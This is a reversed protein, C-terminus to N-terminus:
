PRDAANVLRAHLHPITEEHCGEIHFGKGGLAPPRVVINKWPRYFYAPRKEPTVQHNRYDGLPVVDFNAATFHRVQFGLNRVMSLAKLFVEPGMVASGFNLFAGKELRSVTDCFHYFDRGSARGIAGFDCNPHQHVIDAGLSVHLTMPIGAQYAQWIVSVERHPFLDPHTEMYRGLCRGYGLAGADDCAISDLMCQGTETWMGFTGNAIADGVAESTAGIMALELDHIAVAGNGAVHQILGRRILDSVYPGLGNKIVHAGMFWLIAHGGACAATLRDALEDFEPHTWDPPPAAIDVLDELTVLNHRSAIPYTTIRDPDFAM